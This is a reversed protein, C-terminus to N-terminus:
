FLNWIVDLINFIDVREAELPPTETTFKAEAPISAHIGDHATVKVIYETGPTLLTPPLYAYACTWGEGAKKGANDYLEILCIDGSKTASELDESRKWITTKKTNDIVEVDYSLAPEKQKDDKYQAITSSPVGEWSFMIEKEPVLADTLMVKKDELKNDGYIVELNKIGLPAAAKPAELKLPSSPPTSMNTSSCTLDMTFTYAGSTNEILLSPVELEFSALAETKKPLETKITKSGVNAVLVKKCAPDIKDTTFIVTDDKLTASFKKPKIMVRFAPLENKYVSADTMNIDKFTSLIMTGVVADEKVDATIKFTHTGKALTTEAILKKETLDFKNDDIYIVSNEISETGGTIGIPFEKITIDGDLTMTYLAIVAAKSLPYINKEQDATVSPKVELVSDEMLPKVEAKATTFKTEVPTSSLEGDFATVTLKYSKEPNLTGKPITVYKCTWGKTPAVKSDKALLEVFCLPDTATKENLIEVPKAPETEDTIKWTYSLAQEMEDTSSWTLKQDAAYDIDAPIATITVTPAINKVGGVKVVTMTNGVLDLDLTTDDSLLLQTLKISHTTDLTATASIDARIEITAAAGKTLATAPTPTIKLPFTSTAAITQKAIEKGGIYVSISTLDKADGLGGKDLTISKISVDQKPTMDFKAFSVSKAGQEIEAKPATNASLIVDQKILPITQTSPAVIDESLQVWAMYFKDMRYVKLADINEGATYIRDFKNDLPYNRVKVWISVVSDLCTSVSNYLDNTKVMGATWGQKGNTCFDSSKTPEVSTDKYGYLEADKNSVFVFANKAPIKLTSLATADTIVSIGNFGYFTQKTTKWKGDLVNYYGIMYEQGEAAAKFNKMTEDFTTDTESYVDSLGGAEPVFKLAAKDAGSKTQKFDAGVKAKEAKLFGTEVSVSGQYTKGAQLSPPAAHKAAYQKYYFGGGLAAVVVVLLAILAKKNM